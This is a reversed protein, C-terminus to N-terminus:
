DARLRDIYGTNPCIARLGNWDRAALLEDCREHAACAVCRRAALAADHVCTEDESGPLALGRGHVAEVLRLRGDDRMVRRGIVFAAYLAAALLVAITGLLVVLLENM